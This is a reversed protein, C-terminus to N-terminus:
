GGQFQPTYSLPQRLLAGANPQCYPNVHTPIPGSSPQLSNPIFSQAYHSLHTGNPPPNGGIKTSPHSGEYASTLSSQLSQNNESRGLRAALLPPLSKGSSRNNDVRHKSPRGGEFNMICLVPTIERVRVLRPEMEREKDYEESFYELETRLDKNRIQKRQERLLSELVEYNAEMFAPSIMPDPNPSTSARHILPTNKPTTATYTSVTIPPLENANLSPIPTLTSFSPRPTMEREGEGGDKLKMHDSLNLKLLNRRSHIELQLISDERVYMLILLEDYEAHEMIPLRLYLVHLGLIDEIDSLVQTNESLMHISGTEASVEYSVGQQTQELTLEMETAKKEIRVNRGDKLDSGKTKM